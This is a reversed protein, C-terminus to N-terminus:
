DLSTLLANAVTSAHCGGNNAVTLEPQKEERALFGSDMDVHSVGVTFGLEPKAWDYVQGHVHPQRGVLDPLRLSHDCRVKLLDLM